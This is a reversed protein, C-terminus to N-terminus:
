RHKPDTNMQYPDPNLMKSQIDARHWKWPGVGEWKGVYPIQNRVPATFGLHM